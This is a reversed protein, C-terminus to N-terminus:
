SWPNGLLWEEKLSVFICEGDRGWGKKSIFNFFPFCDKASPSVRIGNVVFERGNDPSEKQHIARNTPVVVRGLLLHDMPVIGGWPQAENGGQLIRWGRHVIPVLVILQRGDQPDEWIPLVQGEEGIAVEKLSLRM